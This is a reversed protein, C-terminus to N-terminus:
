NYVALTPRACEGFACTEFLAYVQEPVGEVAPLGVARAAELTIPNDHTFRGETLFKAALEVQEDPVKGALLYAVLRKVQTQAQLAVFTHLWTLDQIMEAPKSQALAILAAAPMAGIQPDVPGLVSYRELRIEDAALAILTGGSMAYFPVMVTVFGPHTKLAMAIMEAALALGGPTHVIMDIPQSRPTSRIARLVSETDEITISTHDQEKAWPERRHMLTMVHSGRERELAQILKERKALTEIRLREREADTM